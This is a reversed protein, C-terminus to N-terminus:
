KKEYGIVILQGPTLTGDLPNVQVFGGASLGPEVTVFSLAGNNDVQVRSTGDAALSLASVPVAIVKGGTSEIPITLRLSTGVLATQTQDVLIELYVHYGDVGNTGPKNAVTKVTGTGKIGLDPEDIAVTMGSKVLPAEDLPLASDIVIQNNTVSLISGSAADGLTAMVNEVRVPLSPIFVIEDVPVQIGTKSRAINLDAAIHMALDTLRKAERETAKQANIAKQIAIEGALKVAARSATDALAFDSAATARAAEVELPALALADDATQKDNLASALDKELTRINSLQDPTPGFPEFGAAAYWNAVATSTKKDFVGDVPGPNFGLRQLGAELQRVDEGSIGPSLDRYAPTQGQLVFLPRGSATLIVDGENLADNRLPLSTILGANAKLASPAVSIAQPLGFRATGRAIINSSLVREEVPVLIPSAKPPATRAAAEAPSKITSGAIWSGAAVFIVLAIVISITLIRKKSM